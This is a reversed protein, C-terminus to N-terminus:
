PMVVESSLLGENYSSDHVASVQYARGSTSGTDFDVFEPFNTLTRSYRVGDRYIRYFLVSGSPPTWSITPRGDVVGATLATPAGLQTGASAPVNLTRIDGERTGSSPNTIDPRDVAVLQYTLTGAAPNPDTCTLATTVANGGSSPCIRHKTGSSDVQYVRYGLIDREINANWDMDVVESSGGGQGSRGGAFGGPGMPVRRNLQVSAVRLEGPVGRSDFPQANAVYGGDVVWDKGPVGSDVTGIPWNWSWSTPGGTANGRGEPRGDDMTWLVSNASTSTAAFPVQIGSVVQAGGYPDAFATIRPGLGGGPNVLQATQKASQTKAGDRWSLTMTVRRFDDPNTDTTPSGAVGTAAPCPNAPATTSKGDTPDDFTCVSAEITMKVNHRTISWKGNTGITGALGAKTRLNTILTTPAIQEYDLSHTQELIERGLAVAATRANNQRTQRQAGDIMVYTGLIGVMLVMAAVMVEILTFGAEPRSSPQGLM